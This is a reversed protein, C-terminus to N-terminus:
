TKLNKEGRHLESVIGVKAGASAQADSSQCNSPLRPSSVIRDRAYQEPQRQTTFQGLMRTAQKRGFNNNQYFGEEKLYAFTMNHM